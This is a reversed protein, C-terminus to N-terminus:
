RNKKRKKSVARFMAQYPDFDPFSILNFLYVKIICPVSPKTPLILFFFFSNPIRIRKKKLNGHRQVAVVGAGSDSCTSGLLHSRKKKKKKEKTKPHLHDIIELDFLM